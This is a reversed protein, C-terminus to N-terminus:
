FYETKVLMQKDERVSVKEWEQSIQGIGQKCQHRNGVRAFIYIHLFFIGACTGHLKGNIITPRKIILSSVSIHYSYTLLHNNISLTVWRFIVTDGGHVRVCKWM